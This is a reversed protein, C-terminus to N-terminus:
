RVSFHIHDQNEGVPYSYNWTDSEVSYKHKFFPVFNERIYEFSDFAKELEIIQNTFSTNIM